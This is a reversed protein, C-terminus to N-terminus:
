VKWSVPLGADSRWRVRGLATRRIVTTGPTGLAVAVSPLWGPMDLISQQDATLNTLDGEASLCSPRLRLRSPGKFGDLVWRRTGPFDKHFEGIKNKGHCAPDIVLEDGTVLWGLYEATGEAIAKRVAAPADRMSVSQPPLEVAFVDEKGRARQLDTSFVRVMGFTHGKKGKPIRYVRAHHITSGIDASGGRVKIQAAASDFFEINDEPGFHQGNVRISREPDAPLGNKADFGEARNLACWLAPTAARDILAAPLEEALKVQKLKKVTADHAVSSGVRLRLSRVVPIQDENMATTLLDSLASMGDIWRSYTEKAGDSDGEFTKWSQDQEPGRQVARQSDRLNMRLALTRAVGPTMLPIVAADVAHHRRDLRNKAKGGGLYPVRRELGSAKRAEATLQGRYVPVSVELGRKRFHGEVRSALETAMWAVSEMSRSDLEEDKESRRLRQQVAKQFRRWDKPSYGQDRIWYRVRECAEDLSVDEPTKKAIWVPVPLNSKDQNCLHCSAVLNERTNTSGEGSRPVIHDMECRSFTITTGCYVCQGNQRQVALYRNVDSRTVRAGKLLEEQLLMKTKENRKFRTQMSRDLERSAMESMFGSRVHEIVVREPAGWKAEAASVIRGVQKLVRDVAPSGTQEAIAPVPPRWADDVGFEAKRAEHLDEGHEVMRQTLRVLSDVSYAARGSPLGLDSLKEADGESVSEIFEEAVAFAPSYDSERGNNSLLEVLADIEEHSREKDKLWAKLPKVTCERLRQLTVNIPPQSSAREGEDFPKAVGSLQPREVGVIAAIEDWTIDPEQVHALNDFLDQLEPQTLRREEGDAAVRINALMAVIRFEQFARSAKTARRRGGQGPLPDKGVRELASGRPSKAAFVYRILDSVLGEDLDQVEGIVHLENANDQQHLKGGLLGDVGRIHFLGTDLALSIAQGQTITLPLKQGTADEVRKIFGEMFESPDHRQLLSEVKSYPNRWGRHRAMHRVAVSLHWFLEGEDDIRESALLDRSRWPQHSDKEQSLDVLPYGQEQLFVDLRHLRRVRERVLRRTRRAVGSVAKRSTGVKQTTPDVGSDHIYSSAALLSIPIDDGNLEVAASGISHTGVDIGLVYKKADM